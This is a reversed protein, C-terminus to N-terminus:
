EKKNQGEKYKKIEENVMEKYVTDIPEWLEIPNGFPDKFQAFKGYPYSEIDQIIELNQKKFNRILTEIDDVRLNLYPANSNASRQFTLVMLQEGNIFGTGYASFEMGLNEQYWNFLEKQNGQFGLFVGGIGIAKAM